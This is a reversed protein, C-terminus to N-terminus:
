ILPLYTAPPPFSQIHKSVPITFISLKSPNTAIPKNEITSEHLAILSPNKTYIKTGWGNNRGWARGLGCLGIVKDIHRLLSNNILMHSLLSLDQGITNSFGRGMNMPTKPADPNAPKIKNLNRRFHIHIDSESIFFSTHEGVDIVDLSNYFLAELFLSDGLIESNLEWSEDEYNLKYLNSSNTTEIEVSRM